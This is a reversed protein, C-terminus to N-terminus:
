ITLFPWPYGVEGAGPWLHIKSAVLEQFELEALVVGADYDGTQTTDTITREFRV